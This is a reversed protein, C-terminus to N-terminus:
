VETNAVSKDPIPTVFQCGVPQRGQKDADAFVVLINAYLAAYFVYLASEIFTANPM